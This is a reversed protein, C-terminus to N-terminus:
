QHLLENPHTIFTTAGHDVLFQRDRFGWLV